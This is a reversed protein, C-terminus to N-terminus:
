KMWEEGLKDAFFADMYHKNYKLFVQTQRDTMPILKPKGVTGSTENMHNYQYATLINKEGNVMREIDDAIDNYTIVPVKNKYEEYSTIHEFDYRRGYETDQNDQLIGLLLKENVGFPDRCEEKFLEYDPQAQSANALNIKYTMENEQM